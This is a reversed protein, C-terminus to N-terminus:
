LSHLFRTMNLKGILKNHDYYKVNKQLAEEISSNSDIRYKDRGRKQLILDKGFIMFNLRRLYKLNNLNFTRSIPIDQEISLLRLYPIKLIFGFDLNSDEEDRIELVSLRKIVPLQDYFQQNLSTRKVILHHFNTHGRLFNILQNSDKVKSDIELKQINTYKNFLDFPQNSSLLLKIDNYRIHRIFNLDDELDDYNDMQFVLISKTFFENVKAIEKLKVGYLVVDLDSKSRFLDELENASNNAVYFNFRIKKLKKLKFIDDSKSHLFFYFDICELNTFMSMCAVYTDIILYKISLPYQFKTRELDSKKIDLSHLNPTEILLHGTEKLEISLSLALLEPLRLHRISDIALSGHMELIQLQTFKNLDDLKINQFYSFRLRRLYVLNAAPNSLLNLNYLHQQNEIRISSTTSFWNDMHNKLYFSDKEHWCDDFHVIALEKIDYSKVISNFRKNLFRLRLIEDVDLYEFIYFYFIDYPLNDLNPESTLSLSSLPLNDM